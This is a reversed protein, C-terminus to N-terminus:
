LQNREPPFIKMRSWRCSHCPPIRYVEERWRLVEFGDFGRSNADVVLRSDMVVAVDGGLVRGLATASPPEKFWYLHTDCRCDSSGFGRLAMAAGPMAAVKVAWEHEHRVGCAHWV